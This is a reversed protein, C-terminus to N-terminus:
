RQLMYGLQEFRFYSNGIEVGAESTGGLQYFCQKYVIPSTWPIRYQQPLTLQGAWSSSGWTFSGWITPSGSTLIGATNLQMNQEDFVSATLNYGGPLSAMVTSEILCNEYGSGTDPSLCSKMTWSLTAGNETFSSTSTLKVDSQFITATVSVPHLVFTNRWPQILSAPFSHPGSWIKNAIDFWYEQNPSNVADANQTSVRLVNANAAACVRTPEVAYIFPVAVGAGRYGIPDSVQGAFSVVRLGEPSVFALGFNTPCVSLPSLTGTAVNMLNASLNSTAQDGTIQQMASVGQFAIVSQVIGGTIPSSLPLAGLATVALGNAFTLAQTANTRNCPLLADSFAVGNVGCAFYARGNFQVVSVPVSPLNNINTDGAGWLPSAPTGGSVTLTVGAASATAAQSLVLSLGNSAISVITTGAPIGAGSITMGPQWGAQLVNASLTDITTNSHTTGTHTADSFSSIDFWGFKVTGGPFGPHCVIVRTGIVALIPPTWVGMASPSTPVNASTIGTITLFTNTALNYAYPQDKGANLASAVMGYEIDGVVLAGSVFGPSSFGTFDNLQISAPRPVWMEATDNAPIIDKLISMAGPFVNSGDVADSLGKPQLPWVQSKRLAM